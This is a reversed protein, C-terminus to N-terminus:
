VGTSALSLRLAAWGRKCGSATVCVRISRRGPVFEKTSAECNIRSYQPVLYRSYTPVGRAQSRRMSSSASLMCGWGGLLLISPQKQISDETRKSLAPTPQASACPTGTSRAPANALARRHSLYSLTTPQPCPPHKINSTINSTLLVLAMTVCVVGASALPLLLNLLPVQVSVVPAIYSAFSTSRNGRRCLKGM